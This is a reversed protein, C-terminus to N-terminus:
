ENGVYWSGVPREPVASELELQALALLQPAQTETIPRFPLVMVAITHSQSSRVSLQVQIVLYQAILQQDIDPNRGFGNQDIELHM